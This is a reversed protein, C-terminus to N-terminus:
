RVGSPLFRSDSIIFAIPSAFFSLNWRADILGHFQTANRYNPDPDAIDMITADEPIENPKTM